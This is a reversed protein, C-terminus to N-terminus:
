LAADEAPEEGYYDKEVPIGVRVASRLDGRSVSTMRVILHILERSVCQSVILFDVSRFRILTAM